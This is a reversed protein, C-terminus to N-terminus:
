VNFDSERFLICLRIRFERNLIKLGCLDKIMAQYKFGLESQTM